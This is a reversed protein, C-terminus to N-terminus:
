FSLLDEPSDALPPEESLTNAVAEVADEGPLRENEGRAFQLLEGVTAQRALRSRPLEHRRRQPAGAGAAVDGEERGPPVRGDAAQGGADSPGRGVLLRRASFDPEARRLLRWPGE